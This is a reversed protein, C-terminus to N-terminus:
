VNTKRSADQMEKAKRLAVRLEWMTLECSRLSLVLVRDISPVIELLLGDFELLLRRLM